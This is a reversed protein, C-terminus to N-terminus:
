SSKMFFMEGGGRLATRIEGNLVTIAWPNASLEIYVQTTVSLPVGANNDRTLPITTPEEMGGMHFFFDKILVRFLLRNEPSPASTCAGSILFQWSSLRQQSHLRGRLM